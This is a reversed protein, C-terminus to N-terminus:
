FAHRADMAKKLTVQDAYKVDGGVPIGSAIRTIRIPYSKLQESLFAATTEGELHTSTAIVVEKVTGGAVRSLLEKIRIDTPGVGDIPSLAGQLIHYLGKYAGSKELAVMDAPQEVVCLLGNDRAPDSCIGCVESDSLSFCLTCLRTRDHLGRISEALAEAQKRTGHLIHLALREATKEGIGPLRSIQHIANLISPPYYNM